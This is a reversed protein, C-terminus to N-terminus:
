KKRPAKLDLKLEVEDKILDDAKGPYAIGFDQRNIVFDSKATIEKDSITVTAPFKINKKVGHLELTGSLTDTAGKEGGATIETAEFKATPFKEVDFFDKTKLHGDLEGEDTKVSTMDVDVTVKGGEIKGHVLTASGKWKEFKGDHKGTVKHGVFQLSSGTAPDFEVKEGGAAAGGSAAPAASTVTARAKDKNPDECGTALALVAAVVLVNRIHM